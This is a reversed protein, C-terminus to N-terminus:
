VYVHVYLCKGESTSKSVCTSKSVLVTVFMFYLYEGVSTSNCVYVSLYISYYEGTASCLVCSCFM